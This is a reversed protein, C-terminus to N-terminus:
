AQVVDPALAREPARLRPGLREVLRVELRHDREHYLHGGDLIFPRYDGPRGVLSALPGAVSALPALASLGALRPVVAELQIRTAGDARADLSALVLLAFARRGAPPLEPWGGAETALYLSAQDVEGAVLGRAWDPQWIM